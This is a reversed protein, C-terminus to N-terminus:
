ATYRGATHGDVASLHTRRPATIAVVAIDDHERRRVWQTTLMMIREVVAEAPMGACEELAAALRQEGFMDTGLPGGWAETVGDTYLVCTEGPALVTEFTRAQIQELVGVLQGRTDAEEVRGDSRVILPACHGASTLRLVVQGDRRAVSALVLTAFRTHDASLLASNLLRLVGGHDQALPALAQLTNRIKGTLVAAELGKGCVDGLVVLTDDEPTAGPHVDYFDGGVIQHDESARYGGALEFGHLRRLQPPVLDRMLTRTIASQEAYLGATSLAAGARAAFLRASLEDDEGFVPESARRLLVLAGAPVGLGPLPTILVSGVPGDFTSPVLWEPLAAPDLWRSPVPPFGRLAESLGPVDSPDAEVTRQEVAGRDGCVVPLRNGTVPAVVSAADALHRVALHVTASMCRDVNLTAMLVASAEGFFSTRAQERTLAQKTDWLERGADEVLWWAIQGDLVTPRAEFRKGHLSGSAAADDADPTGLRQVLRRHAQALWPPAVDDLDSGPIASPLVSHTSTSVARVVGDSTVVIVPHPISSWAADLGMAVGIPGDAGM